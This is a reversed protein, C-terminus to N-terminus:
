GQGGTAKAKSKASRAVRVVGAKAKRAAEAKPAEAAPVLDVLDRMSGGAAFLAAFMRDLTVGGAASEIKAIRPQTTRAREALQQQTLDARERRHRVARGLSVRLEVLREEEPTLGLFEAVTGVRFGAAELAKRKKADM